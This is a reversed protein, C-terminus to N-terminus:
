INTKESSSIIAKKADETLTAVVNHTATMTRGRFFEVVRFKGGSVKIRMITSEPTYKYAHPFNQANLDVLFACGELAAVPINYRDKIREPVDLVDDATITRARALKQVDALDAALAAAHKTDIIIGNYNKM